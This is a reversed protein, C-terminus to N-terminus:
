KEILTIEAVRSCVDMLKQRVQMPDENLEIAQEIAAFTNFGFVSVKECVHLLMLLGVFGATAHTSVNKAIYPSDQVYHRYTSM